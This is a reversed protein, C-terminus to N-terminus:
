RKRRKRGAEYERKSNWGHCDICLSGLPKYRTIEVGSVSEVTKHCKSCALSEHDEDLKFTSQTGHDFTTLEFGAQATHCRICDTTGGIRFQGAHPDAHCSACDKSATATRRTGGHTPTTAPHCSACDTQAHLGQLAFDTWRGHDFSRPDALNFAQSDHCRACDTEGVDADFAGDHVDEHCDACRTSTGVFVRNAGQALEPQPDELEAHCTSCGVALHGGDLPFRTLSHQEVTFAVPHFRDAYHCTTCSEGAFVDESFQQVHPDQHCSRCSSQARGPFRLDFTQGVEATAATSTEGFGRHCDQCALSDHPADLKFGSAGHAQEATGQDAELFVSHATDHCSSCTAAGEIGRLSSVETIYSASHPSEHCEGCARVVLGENVQEDRLSGLNEISFLSDAEHCEKCSRESHSGSLAFRSDHEFLAM